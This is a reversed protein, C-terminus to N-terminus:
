AAVAPTDSADLDVGSADSTPITPVDTATPRDTATNTPRAAETRTANLAAIATSQAQATATAAEAGQQINSFVLFGGVVVLVLAVVGALILLPNTGGGAAAEAAQQHRAIEESDLATTAPDTDVEVLTADTLTSGFEAPRSPRSVDRSAAFQAMTQDINDRNAERERRLQNIASQAARRMQTPATGGMAEGSLNVAAQFAEALANASQYRDERDKAMAEMIVDAIADTVEVDFERPDPVPSQVHKFVVGMPTEATYPMQGTIAQFLIVGLAYIDSRWDVDSEGVAQEPSMYDPTGVAFGTQTLGQGDAVRAIGFDTVFANGDGDVMINSPKIDRHVVGQRHAYDLGSCIQNMMYAVEGLPLRERKLVDGLTGSELYRMVIYPPDNAAEYDYLPLLHPHELRAVLQAEMQFRELATDDLAIANHMIKVAVDRGTRSHYARYVTAMGGKGIEEVIEYQGLRKGIM